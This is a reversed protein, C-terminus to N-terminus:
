NESERGRKTRSSSTPTAQISYVQSRKAGEHRARAMGRIYRQASCYYLREARHSVSIVVRLGM